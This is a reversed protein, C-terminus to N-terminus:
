QIEFLRKNCAFDCAKQGLHRRTCALFMRFKATGQAYRFSLKIRVIKDWSFPESM